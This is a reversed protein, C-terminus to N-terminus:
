CFYIFIGERKKKEGKKHHHMAGDDDDASCSSGDRDGHIVFDLVISCPSLKKKKNFLHYSDVSFL